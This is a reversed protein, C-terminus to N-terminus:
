SKSQNKNWRARAANQAIQARQEASLKKARAKGGKLGGLRGLSVAAPNKKATEPEIQGTSIAVIRAARANADRPLKKPRQV